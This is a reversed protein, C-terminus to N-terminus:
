NVTVQKFYKELIGVALELEEQTNQRADKLPYDWGLAKWKHIGL